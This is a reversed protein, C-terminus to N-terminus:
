SGFRNTMRDLAYLIRGISPQFQPDSNLSSCPNEERRNTTPQAHLPRQAPSIVLESSYPHTHRITHSRSVDNILRGLDL